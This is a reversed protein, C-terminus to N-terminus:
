LGYNINPKVVPNYMRHTQVFTYHFTRVMVTDYPITEAEANQRSMREQKASGRAVMSRKVTEM